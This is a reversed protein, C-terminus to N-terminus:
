KAAELPIWPRKLSQRFIGLNLQQRSVGGGGCEDAANGPVPWVVPKPREAALRAPFRATDPPLFDLRGAKVLDLFEVGAAIREPWALAQAIPTRMDPSGLQALTSNDLWSLADRGDRDTLADFYGEVATVPKFFV